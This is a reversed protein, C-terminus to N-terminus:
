CTYCWLNTQPVHLHRLVCAFFGSQSQFGPCFDGIINKKNHLYMVLKEMLINSLKSTEAQTGDFLILTKYSQGLIIVLCMSLVNTSSM